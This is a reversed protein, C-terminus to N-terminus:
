KKQYTLWVSPRDGRDTGEERNILQFDTELHSLDKPRIGHTSFGPHWIFGYMMVFGGPKLLRPLNHIYTEKQRENLNHFCGIDLILDYPTNLLRHQTVDEVIFVVKVGAKFAKKRAARIAKGVFDVGTVQWGARALTIANTGTGCGLDLAFGPPHTAIFNLLEPPSVGTDWPPRQLYSVYFFLRALIGMSTLIKGSKRRVVQNIRFNPLILIGEKVLM